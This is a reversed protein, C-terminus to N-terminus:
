RIWSIVLGVLEATRDRRTWAVVSVLALVVAPVSGMAVGLNIVTVTVAGVMLGVFALAAVGCLRPILLAVAGAAELIGIVLTATPGFGIAAFGAITAPDGFLKPLASLVYMAALLVQLAWLGLHTFRRRGTPVAPSATLTAAPRSAPPIATM